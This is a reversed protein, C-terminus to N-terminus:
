SEVRLKAPGDPQLLDFFLVELALQPAVNRELFQRCRDVAALASMLEASTYGEMAGRLAALRDANWVLSEPAGQALLLLDRYYGRILELLRLYTPKAATKAAAEAGSAIPPEPAPSESRPKTGIGRRGSAPERASGARPSTGDPSRGEAEAEIEEPGALARTREALRLAALCEEPRQRTLRRLRATEDLLDLVRRRRELVEPDRSWRLALGPRGVATLALAGATEPDTGSAQLWAQIRDVPVLRFPVV